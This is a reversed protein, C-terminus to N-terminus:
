NGIEFNKRSFDPTITSQQWPGVQVVPNAPESRIQLNANRMSSGVTNIGLGFGTTFVFNQGALEPSSGEPAEQVQPLLDSPQIETEPSNSFDVSAGLDEGTYEMKPKLEMAEQPEQSEQIEKNLIFPAFTEKKSAFYLVIVVTIILLTMQVVRNSFFKMVSDTM